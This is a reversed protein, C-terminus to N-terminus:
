RYHQLPRYGQLSQVLAYGTVPWRCHLREAPPLAGQARRALTLHPKFPRAEVELGLGLLADALRSHLAHMAKPARGDLGRRVGGLPLNRVIVLHNFPSAHDLDSPVTLTM